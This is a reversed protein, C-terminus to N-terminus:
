YKGQQYYQELLQKEARDNMAKYGIMLIGLVAAIGIFYWAVGQKITADTKFIFKYLFKRSLLALGIALLIVFPQGCWNGIAYSFNSAGFILAFVCGLIIWFIITVVVIASYFLVKKM